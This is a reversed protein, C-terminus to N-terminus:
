ARRLEAALHPTLAVGVAAMRLEYSLVDDRVTFTRELGDVEKASSTGEMHTSAVDITTELVTGEAVEVLGTPHSMVIEIRGGPQPRWYGMEGHLPRGDDLAWTRQSYALFPKGVHWFRVEEGYAFSEITPYQGKGEGSWTGLLFAIPEVDPHVPAAMAAM